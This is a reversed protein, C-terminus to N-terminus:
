FLGRFSITSYFKMLKVLPTTLFFKIRSFFNCIEMYFSEKIFSKEYQLQHHTYNLVNRTYSARPEFVGTNAYHEIKIRKM